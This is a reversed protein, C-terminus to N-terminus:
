EINKTSIIHTVETSKTTDQRANNDYIRYSRAHKRSSKEEEGEDWTLLIQKQRLIGGPRRDQLLLTNKTLLLSVM